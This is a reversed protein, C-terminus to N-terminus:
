NLVDTDQGVSNTKIQKSDNPNSKHKKTERQPMALCSIADRSNTPLTQRGNIELSRLHGRIVMSILAVYGIDSGTTIHIYM